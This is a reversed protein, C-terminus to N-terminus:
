EFAVTAGALAFRRGAGGFGAFSCGAAELAIGVEVGVAMPVGPTPYESSM